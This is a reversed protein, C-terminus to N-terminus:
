KIQVLGFNNEKLAKEVRNKVLGLRGQLGSTITIFGSSSTTLPLDRCSPQKKLFDRFGLEGIVFPLFSFKM